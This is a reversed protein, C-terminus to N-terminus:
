AIVLMPDALDLYHDVHMIRELEDMLGAVDEPRHDAEHRRAELESTFYAVTTFGRGDFYATTAGLLDPRLKFLLTETEQEIQKARDVEFVTGAMIQVFGATNRDGNLMEVVDTTDHFMIPGAFCREMEAWWASHEPRMSNAKAMAADVFRAILIVDGNQTIGSTSGLYGVATPRLEVNWRDILAHMAKADETRGEIIQIFVASGEGIGTQGREVM